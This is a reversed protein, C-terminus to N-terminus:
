WYYNIRVRYLRSHLTCPGGHFNEFEVHLINICMLLAHRPPGENDALNIVRGEAAILEDTEMFVECFQILRSNPTRIMSSESIQLISPPGAFTCHLTFDIEVWHWAIWVLDQVRSYDMVDMNECM